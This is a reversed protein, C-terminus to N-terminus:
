YRASFHGTLFLIFLVALVCVVVTTINNGTYGATNGFLWLLLFVVLVLILVELM